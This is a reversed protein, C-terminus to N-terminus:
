RRPATAKAVPHAEAHVGSVLRRGPNPIEATVQVQGTGPDVTPAIQTITGRFAGTYGTVSVDVPQGVKFAGVEDPAVHAVLRMTSTDMITAVAADATVTDGPEVNRESIVGDFPARVELKSMAREVGELRSRAQAVADRTSSLLARARDVDENLLERRAARAQVDALSAKAMEESRVAAAVSARAEGVTEDFTPDQVRAVPAGRKVPQGVEVTVAAVMGAVPSRLTASRGAELTGGFTSGAARSSGAAFVVLAMPAFLWRITRAVQLM